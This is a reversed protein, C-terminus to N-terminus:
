AYLQYYGQPYLCVPCRRPACEGNLINGCGLCIWLRDEPKCFLENNRIDILYNQFVLNHNLKINAVGSFLADINSYGEERAILAYDRYLNNAAYSEIESAVGLNQETDFVEGNIINRFREALFKSKSSFREFSLSIGILEEKRARDAFLVYNGLTQLEYEYASQVNQYTRSEQFEM